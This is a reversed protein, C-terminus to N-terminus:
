TKNFSTLVITSFWPLSFTNTNFYFIDLNSRNTVSNIAQLVTAGPKKVAVICAGCGAQRCMYKTGRLELVNRVYDLVTVDSSM